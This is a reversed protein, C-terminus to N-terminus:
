SALERGLLRGALLRALEEARRRLDHRAAEAEKAMTDLVGVLREDARARATDLSTQREAMATERATARIKAAERAAQSMEEEVRAVAALYKENKAAWEQQADAIRRGREGIVTGVPRILFRYVLWLTVWFCVMVFLLSLNPPTM